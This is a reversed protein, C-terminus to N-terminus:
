EGLCDQGLVDETIEKRCDDVSMRDSRSRFAIMVSSTTWASMSGSSASVRCGRLAPRCKGSGVKKGLVDIIEHRINGHLGAINM